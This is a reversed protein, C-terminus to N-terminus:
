RRKRRGLLALGVAVAALSGPEPVVAWDFTNSLLTAGNPDALFNPGNTTSFNAVRGAGAQIGALAIFGGDMDYFNVAGPRLTTTSTRTGDYDDLTLIFSGPLGANILADATNQTFATTPNYDYPTEPNVAMLPALTAFYGWTSMEWLLWESTVLGKGSTVFNALATQGAVPMDNDSLWNFNVQLYAADFGGLGVGNFSNFASGITATHGGSTLAALVGADVGADGSTFVYVNAAYASTAAMAAAILGFRGFCHVM